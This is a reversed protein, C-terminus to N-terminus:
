RCARACCSSRTRTGCSTRRLAAVCAPEDVQHAFDRGDSITVQKFGLLKLLDLFTSEDPQTHQQFFSTSRAVATFTALLARARYITNLQGDSLAVIILFLSFPIREGLEGPLAMWLAVVVLPALIAVAYATAARRVDHRSERM